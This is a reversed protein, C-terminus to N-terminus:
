STPQQTQTQQQAQQQAHQQAISREIELLRNYKAIREGRNPPGFKAFDAGLGVALDAILDDNTEGSRHAVVLEMGLERARQAFDISETITGIKSPKIAVANCLQKDAARQLKEQEMGVLGDGVITNTDGLEGMLTGWENEHDAAFPDEIYVSHYLSRLKQYYDHLADATYEKGEDRLVYSNGGRRLHGAAVDVGTFLDQAFTYHTTKVAEIILEFADTNNYLNPTYGGVLGVSHIAEKAILVDELKHFITVAIELAQSFQHYSAPILHFEQIELNGTGFDGGNILSFVATPIRPPESLGFSSNLFAYPEMGSMLAGAKWVAQSTVLLSNVGLSESTATGDLARLAEDIHRQATVDMGIIEPAITENVLQAASQVGAGLMRHSQDRKEIATDSSTGNNQAGSPVSTVVSHGTDVWLRCELTPLGRSDLIEYATLHQIQPM